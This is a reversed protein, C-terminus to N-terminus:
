RRIGGRVHYCGSMSERKFFVFIVCILINSLFFLDKHNADLAYALLIKVDSRSIANHCVIRSKGSM